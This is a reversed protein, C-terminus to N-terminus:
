KKLTGPSNIFSYFINRLERYSTPQAPDGVMRLFLQTGFVRKGDVLGSRWSDQLYSVMDRLAPAYTLKEKDKMYSIPITSFSNAQTSYILDFFWRVTSEYAINQLIKIIESPKNILWSIVPETTQGFFTLYNDNPTNLSYYPQGAAFMLMEVGTADGKIKSYVEPAFGETRLWRKSNFNYVVTEQYDLQWNRRQNVFSNLDNSRNRRPRFTVYLNKRVEDIGTIVDFASNIDHANNWKNIFNTKAIVFSKIGYKRKNGKDDESEIDSIDAASKYDSIVFSSNKRDYWFIYHDYVQVSQTDKADCGYMSGIKQHPTGLGNDLNTVMVGQANPFTYHFNYDTTFWDNECGFYIISRETHAFIIGGWPYASFDKRNEEGGRFLGLENLIDDFNGSKTTDASFWTQDADPNKINGVRGGGTILSGFSDSINPSEFPHPFFKDGVGTITINRTLLYTDWFEVNITTPYEYQPLGNSFGKFIAIEGNIVPFFGATEMYPIIDSVQTPTYLEIWFGTSNILKDLKPDYPVLLTVSTEQATQAATTNINNNVVPAASQNPLLGATIAAQNYDTGLIRLDLPPGFTATDFLTGVGDDYFRIRDGDVFQYSALTSFNRSINYDYLSTITISCFVANTSDTIVNGNNDIYVIKDGVWQVYHLESLNKSVTPSIWKIDPNQKSLQLAASIIIQFFSPLTNNRELFTPVDLQIIENVPTLRGALDAGELAVSYRAGEKLSTQGGVIINVGLILSFPYTRVNCPVCPSNNESFSFLPLAGCNGITINFNGGANVYVNSQRLTNQGNHIILTFTGDSKTFVTAGDKISVAINQYGITGDLSTIKGNYLIRNCDGVVNANHDALYTINDSRWGSGANNTPSVFITPYVCNLKCSFQIDVIDSDAAKTYGFYFGNKDTFTGGEDLANHTMNYPFLEVPIPDNISERLYGEIFRFKKNGQQTVSPCFIYFLDRGNGWVNVNDNTCDIEIEKSFDVIASPTIVRVGNFGFPIDGRSNAIGMVYTSTNRFDGSLSVNHRGLSAIYRGAPVVFDFRCVFMGGNSIVSTVYDRANGTGTSLDLLNQIKTLTKDTNVQYWTGVNYYPTGKLYCCLASKDGFDLGFATSDEVNVSIQLTGQNVFVGGFRMQTDEGNFYGVQSEFSFTDTMYGIYAYLSITRVPIKCLGDNVYQVQVTIKDMIDCGFNPYGYRNNCLLAADELDSLAMSLQPIDNQLMLATDQDVLTGSKSNDFVYTITNMNPDYGNESWQGTRLWYDTGIVDVSNNGCDTFKFITDYQIWEGWEQTSITNDNNKKCQRVYIMIKEVMPSGAYLTIQLNKTISDPNSLFDETRIYFPLSYPSFTTPRGDTYRFQYSFQFATDVLRNIKNVDAQTNPLNTIVPKYMPPRTAWEFLEERDFHPPQLTWYPFLNADFGNTKIAANVNIWKQWVNGDTFFLYKELINGDVDQIFRLKCRHNSIFAEQKNSFRLKPDIIVISWVGTNGNLVYVGHFGNDNYNMHYTEKTTDSYFEGQCKNYGKPLVTNPVPTNSRTPTLTLENQGEGLANSNPNGNIDWGMGKMFPSEDPNLQSHSVDTNIYLPKSNEQKQPM